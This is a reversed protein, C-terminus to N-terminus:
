VAEKGTGLTPTQEETTDAYYAQKIKNLMADPTDLFSTEIVVMEMTSGRYTEPNPLMYAKGNIWVM